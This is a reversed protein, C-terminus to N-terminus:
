IVISTEDERCIGSGGGGGEEDDEEKKYVSCIESKNMYILYGLCARLTRKINKKTCNKGRKNDATNDVMSM